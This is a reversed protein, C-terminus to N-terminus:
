TRDVIQGTSQVTQPLTFNGNTPLIEQRLPEVTFDHINSLLEFPWQLDSANYTDDLESNTFIEPGDEVINPSRLQANDPRRPRKTPPLLVSYRRIM